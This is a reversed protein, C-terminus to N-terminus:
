TNKYCQSLLQKNVWEITYMISFVIKSTLKELNKKIKGIM